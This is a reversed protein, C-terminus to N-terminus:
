RNCRTHINYTHIHIVFFAVAVSTFHRKVLVFISTKQCLRIITTRIKPKVVFICNGTFLLKPASSVAKMTCIIYKETSNIYIYLRM